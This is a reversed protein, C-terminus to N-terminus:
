KGKTAMYHAKGVEYKSQKVPKPNAAKKETKKISRNLKRGFAQDQVKAKMADLIEKPDQRSLQKVKRSQVKEVKKEGKELIKEAQEKQKINKAAQKVRKVDQKVKQRAEQKPNLEKDAM